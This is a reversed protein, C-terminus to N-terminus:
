SKIPEKPLDQCAPDSVVQLESFSSETFNHSLYIHAGQSSLIYKGSPIELHAYIHRCLFVYTCM